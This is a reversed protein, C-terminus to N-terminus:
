RRGSALQNLHFGGDLMLTEGTIVDAFELFYLIGDAINLPTTTLQLPTTEELHRKSKEYVDDGMGKRLWDGQIFGPCVTNVRIEPGLVRAMSLGLTILAGKSAAYAVSSGIGMVGAVSAVNVISGSKGRRMSPVVARIMQYPGVTNVAYIDLFDSRDRICM